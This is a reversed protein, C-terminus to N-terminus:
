VKPENQKERESITLIESLKMREGNRMGQFHDNLLERQIFYPKGDAKVIEADGGYNSILLKVYVIDEESFKPVDWLLPSVKNFYCGNVRYACKECGVTACYNRITRIAENVSTMAEVLQSRVRM